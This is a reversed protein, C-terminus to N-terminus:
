SRRTSRPSSAAGASCRASRPARRRGDQLRGLRRRVDERSSSTIATTARTRPQTAGHLQQEADVDPVVPTRAATTRRSPAGRPRPSRPTGARPAPAPGPPPPRRPTTSARHARRARASPSRAGSARRPPRPRHRPLRRRRHEDVVRAARQARRDQPEVHPGVGLRAREVRREPRPAGLGEAAVAHM